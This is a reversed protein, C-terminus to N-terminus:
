HFSSSYSTMHLSQKVLLIKPLSKTAGYNYETFSFFKDMLSSHYILLNQIVLYTESRIKVNPFIKLVTRRNWLSYLIGWLQSLIMVTTEGCQM